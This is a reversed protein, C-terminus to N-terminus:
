VFWLNGPLQVIADWMSQKTLLTLGITEFSAGIIYAFVFSYGIMNKTAVDEIIVERVEDILSPLLVVM